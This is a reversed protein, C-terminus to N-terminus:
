YGLEARMRKLRALLDKPIGEIAEMVRAEMEPSSVHGPRGADPHRSLDYKSAAEVMQEVTTGNGEALVDGVTFNYVMRTTADFSEPSRTLDEFRVHLTSTDSSNRWAELMAQGTEHLVYKAEIALGETLSKEREKLLFSPTDRDSQHFIYGSVVMAIPDRIIHVNRIPVHRRQNFNMVDATLNHTFWVRSEYFRETPCNKPAFGFMGLSLCMELDMLKGQVIALSRLLDTGSKHHSGFFWYLRPAIAGREELVGRLLITLQSAKPKLPHAEAVRRSILWEVSSSGLAGEESEGESFNSREMLHRAAARDTTRLGASSALLHVALLGRVAFAM